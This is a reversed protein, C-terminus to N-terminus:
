SVPHAVIAGHREALGEGGGKEEKGNGRHWLQQGHSRMGDPVMLVPLLRGAERLGQDMPVLMALPLGVVLVVEPGRRRQPRIRWPVELRRWGHDGERSRLRAM